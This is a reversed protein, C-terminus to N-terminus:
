SYDTKLVIFVGKKLATFMRETKYGGMLQNDHWPNVVDPLDKMVLSYAIDISILHHQPLFLHLSCEARSHYARLAFARPLKCEKRLLWVM